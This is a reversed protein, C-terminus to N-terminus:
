TLIVAVTLVAGLVVLAIALVLGLRALWPMGSRPRRGPEDDHIEIASWDEVESAHRMLEFGSEQWTLDDLSRGDLIEVECAKLDTSTVYNLTARCYATM